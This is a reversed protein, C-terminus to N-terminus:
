VSIKFYQLIAFYVFYIHRKQITQSDMYWFCIYKFQGYTVIYGNEAGLRRKLRNKHSTTHKYEYSFYETICINYLKIIRSICPLYPPFSSLINSFHSIFLSIPISIYSYLHIHPYPFINISLLPNINSHHSFFSTIFIYRYFISFSPHPSPTPFPIPLPHPSTKIIFAFAGHLINVHELRESKSKRSFTPFAGFNM